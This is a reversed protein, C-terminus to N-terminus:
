TPYITCLMIIYTYEKMLAYSVKTGDKDHLTIGTPSLCLQWGQAFLKGISILCTCRAPIYYIDKISGKVEKGDIITTFKLSGKGLAHLIRDEAM